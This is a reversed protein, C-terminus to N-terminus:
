VNKSHLVGIIYGWYVRLCGDVCMALYKEENELNDRWHKSFDDDSFMSRDVRM